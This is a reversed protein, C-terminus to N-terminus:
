SYNRTFKNRLFIATANLALLLLLLVLIAAAALNRWEVQPRATWQYIQAPLTTFKSFVGTPDVTIYTSVGVVILPATEGFARSMALITGTLIGPIANPLVHFWITQWKTAGVGYSAQRLSGPVARIAEQANIIILPLVLLALTFGGSLITRGNSTTPNTIGLLNGSTLPELARVFITLGLIGYIISPVAALNNINMQILRNIWLGDTAYEELYIAAGVGIPLAVLITILIIWLSGLIATRVGATIPDSSQTSTLFDKSLWIRFQLYAGPYKQIVEKEIKQKQFLSEALKWTELVQPKIIEATVLTVLESQPRSLIPKELDLTRYRNTSLKEQLIHNLQAVSLKAIPAGDSLSAPNVKVQFAVFGSSGNIVNYLLLSLALISVLMAFQFIVLWLQSILRRHPLNVAFEPDEESPELQHDPTKKISPM